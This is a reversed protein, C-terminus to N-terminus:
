PNVRLEENRIKALFPRWRFRLYLYGLGRDRIAIFLSWMIHPTSKRTSNPPACQATFEPPYEALKTQIPRATAISTLLKTTPLCIFFVGFPMLSTHVAAVRKPTSMVNATASRYTGTSKDHSIDSHSRSKPAAFNACPWAPPEWM